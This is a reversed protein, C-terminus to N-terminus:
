NVKILSALERAMVAAQQKSVVKIRRKAENERQEFLFNSVSKLSRVYSTYLEEDKGPNQLKWEELSLKGVVNKNSDEYHDLSGIKHIAYVNDVGYKAAVHELLDDDLRPFDDVWHLRENILMILWHYHPTGYLKTSIIDFTENEEIDYEDFLTIRDIVYARVRVNLIIDVLQILVTEGKFEFPVLVNPFNNFYM